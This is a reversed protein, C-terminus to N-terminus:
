NGIRQTELILRLYQLEEKSSGQLLENWKYSLEPFCEVVMDAKSPFYHHINGIPINTDLALTKLSTHHFGYKLFCKRISERLRAKIRNNKM